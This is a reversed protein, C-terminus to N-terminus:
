AATEVDGNSEAEVAAPKEDLKAKKEPSVGDVASEESAEIGATSKRKISCM